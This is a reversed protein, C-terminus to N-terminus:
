SGAGQRAKPLDSLLSLAANRGAMGALGPGPHSSSGALYLGPLPARYDALRPDPRLYGSHDVTLAGGTWDGQPWGFLRELDDPLFCDTGMVTEELDPMLPRLLKLSRELLREKVAEQAALGSPVFGWHVCLVAGGEPALSPEWLSPVTIECPLTDALDGARWKQGAHHLVDGQPSSLIRARLVTEAELAEGTTLGLTPLRGLALVVFASCGRNPRHHLAHALDIGVSAVGVFKLLTAEASVTSLVQAGEIRRGDELAVGTIRDSEILIKQVRAQTLCLGGHAEIQQRLAEILGASGGELDSGTPWRKPTGHGALTQLWALASGPARGDIGQGLLGASLLPGTALTPGAGKPDRLAELLEEATQFRLQSLAELGQTSGAIAGKGERPRRYAQFARELLGGLARREPFHGPASPPQETEIALCELAESFSKPWALGRITAPLAHDTWPKPSADFPGKDLVVAEEWATQDGRQEALVLPLSQARRKLGRRTLTLERRIKEPLVCPTPAGLPVSFPSDATGAFRYPALSGGLTEGAELLTVKQGALALTAAAVLGNLGGGLVLVQAKDNIDAENKEQGTM